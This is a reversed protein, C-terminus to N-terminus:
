KIRRRLILTTTFLIIALGALGIEVIRLLDVPTSEPADTRTLSSGAQEGNELAPAPAETPAQALETELTPTPAATAEAVTADAALPTETSEMAFMEATPAETAEASGAEAARQQAVVTATTAPTAQASSLINPSTARLALQSSTALDGIVAFALLVMAAATAFRMVAYMRVAASPKRAMSRPLVFSRPPKVAPLTRTLQVARKLMEFKARAETHEALYRELFAREEASVQGDIYPSFLEEARETDRSKRGLWGM